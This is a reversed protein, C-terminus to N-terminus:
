VSAMYCHRLMARVRDHITTLRCGNRMANCECCISNKAEFSLFVDRFLSLEHDSLLMTVAYMMADDIMVCMAHITVCRM